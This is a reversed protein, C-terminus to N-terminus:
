PLAVLDARQQLCALRLPPSRRLPPLTGLDAWLPDATATARRRCRLRARTLWREHGPEGVCRYIAV